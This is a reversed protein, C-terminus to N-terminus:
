SEKDAFGTFPSGSPCLLFEVRRNKSESGNAWGKAVIAHLHCLCGSPTMDFRRGIERWSPQIGRDRAGKYLFRFITMQRDTLGAVDPYIGTPKRDSFGRFPAGDPRRLIVFSRSRSEGFALWERRVLPKALAAVANPSSAGLHKAIERYSPQYGRDRATEYIFRLVAMQKATPPRDLITSM